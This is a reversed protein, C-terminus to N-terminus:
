KHDIGIQVADSEAVLAGGDAAPDQLLVRNVLALREVDAVRRGADIGERQVEGALLRGGVDVPGPILLGAVGVTQADSVPEGVPVGSHAFNEAELLVAIKRRNRTFNGHIALGEGAHDFPAAAEAVEGNGAGGGALTGQVEVYTLVLQYFLNGGLRGLAAGNGGASVEGERAQGIGVEGGDEQGFAVGAHLGHCKAIGH